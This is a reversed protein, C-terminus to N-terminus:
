VYVIIIIFFLVFHTYCLFVHVFLLRSKIEAIIVIFLLLCIYLVYVNNIFLFLAFVVFFLM